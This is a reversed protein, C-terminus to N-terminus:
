QKSEPQDCTVHKDPNTLKRIFEAAEEETVTGSEIGEDISLILGLYEKAGSHLKSIQMSLHKWLVLLKRGMMNSIGSFFSTVFSKIGWTVEM